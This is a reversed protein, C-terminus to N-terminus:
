PAIVAEPGDGFEQYTKAKDENEDDMAQITIPYTVEEGIGFHADGVKVVQGIAVVERLSNVGDAMEFVFSRLPMAKANHKIEIVGAANKTVNEPGFVEILAPMDSQMLTLDYSVHKVKPVSKILKSGAAIVEHQDVSTARKLGDKNVYGPCKFAPDLATKADTPLETGVPAAYFGGTARFNTVLIDAGQHPNAPIAM